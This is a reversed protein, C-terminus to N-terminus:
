YRAEAVAASAPRDPDIRLLEASTYRDAAALQDDSRHSYLAYEQCPRGNMLSEMIICAQKENVKKYIELNEKLHKIELDKKDMTM